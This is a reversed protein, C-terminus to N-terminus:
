RELHRDLRQICERLTDALGRMTEQLGRMEGRLAESAATARSHGDSLDDLEVRHQDLIEGHIKQRELVRGYRVLLGGVTVALGAITAWLGFTEVAM